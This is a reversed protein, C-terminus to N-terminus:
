THVAAEVADAPQGALESTTWIVLRLPRDGAPVKLCLRDDITTLTCSSSPMIGTPQDFRSSVVALLEKERPGFQITRTFIPAASGGLDIVSPSELVDTSGVTYSVVGHDGHHYLGRFRGWSKPLPGYKRGDRGVVRQDDNFSGSAPDAWGPGPQNQFHVTGFVRPHVQHKGNFQIGNWDIFGNGTWGGAWRLTDHEFVMWARGRSVGGAGADLRVAIGKQAINVGGTGIEYTHILSSGYDMTVWPEITRPPPGRTDGKPLTALYDNGLAVFQGGNHQKLYAERIYHIVDYKQQPVMWSQPAMVGFGRTLTQYMAYPDSGN